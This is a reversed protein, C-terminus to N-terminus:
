LARNYQQQPSRGAQRFREQNILYIEDTSAISQHSHEHLLGMAQLEPSLSFFTDRNIMVHETKGEPYTYAIVPSQNEPKSATIWYKEINFSNIFAHNESLNEQLWQTDDSNLKLASIVQSPTDVALVAKEAIHKALEHVRKIQIQMRIPANSVGEHLIHHGDRNISHRLIQESSAVPEREMLGVPDSKTMANNSVFRLLNIGDVMGAPDANLWRMLWPVYYRFGYYVLGSTDREKGSYRITKYSAEIQRRTAWLATGGFPYFTERSITNANSDLELGTSGSRDNIQYRASLREFGGPGGQQWHLICCGNVSIVRLNERTKGAVIRTRIELGPLYRVQRQQRTNKGPQYSFKMVRTATNSM